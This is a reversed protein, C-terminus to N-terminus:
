RRRVELVLLRKTWRGNVLQLSRNHRQTSDRALRTAADTLMERLPIRVERLIHARLGASHMATSINDRGLFSSLVLVARPRPTGLSSYWRCFKRVLKLGDPGGLRFASNQPDARIEALKAKALYKYPLQPPNFSIMDSEEVIERPIRSFSQACSFGIQSPSFRRRLILRISNRLTEDIAIQQVDNFRVSRAKREALCYLGIIGRGCGIDLLRTKGPVVPVFECAAKAFLSPPDFKSRTFVYNRARPWEWTKSVNVETSPPVDERAANCSSSMRGRRGPTAQCLGDVRNVGHVSYSLFYATGM